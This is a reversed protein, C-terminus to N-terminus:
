RTNRKRRGSRKAETKPAGISKPQDNIRVRMQNRQAISKFSRSHRSLFLKLRIKQHLQQFVIWHNSIMIQIKGEPLTEPIKPGFENDDPVVDLITVFREPEKPQEIPTKKPPKAPPLEPESDSSSSENLDDLEFVSQLLEIPPL